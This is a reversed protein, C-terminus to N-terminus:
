ARKDHKKAKKVENKYCLICAEKYEDIFNDIHKRNVLQFTKTKFYVTLENVFTVHDANEKPNFTLAPVPKDQLLVESKM